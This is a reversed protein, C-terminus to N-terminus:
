VGAGSLARLAVWLKEGSPLSVRRSFVAAPDAEIRALLRAYIGAMAAVCARSRRDLLDLLGLGEEYADRARAAEFLVLRVLGDIPGRAEADCGFRELDERPLYVRGMTERDEVIDRLINTIQLGIGLRNALRSARSMDDAGFIALSLRGVSGAVCTCYYELEAFSDWHQREGDLECGTVIEGLENATIPYRSMADGLAVFVPDDVPPSGAATVEILERVNALERRKVEVSLDGDGIDDVRRAFAYLASMAARKDNPLLRIGYSFNKAELKTIQECHAYAETLATM